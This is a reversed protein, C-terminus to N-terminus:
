CTTRGQGSRSVRFRWRLDASVFSQGKEQMTRTIQCVQCYLEEFPFWVSLNRGLANAAPWFQRYLPFMRLNEETNRVHMASIGARQWVSEGFYSGPVIKATSRCESSEDPDDGLGRRYSTVTCIPSVTYTTKYVGGYPDFVTSYEGPM